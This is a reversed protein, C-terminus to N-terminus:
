SSFEVSSRSLPNKMLGHLCKCAAFDKILEDYKQRLAFKRVALSPLLVVATLPDRGPQHLVDFLAKAFNDKCVQNVYDMTMM